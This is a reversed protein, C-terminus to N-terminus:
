QIKKVILVQEQFWLSCFFLDNKWEKKINSGSESHFNKPDPTFM